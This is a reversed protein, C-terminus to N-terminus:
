EKYTASMQKYTSLVVFIAGNQRYISSVGIDMFLVRKIIKFVKLM